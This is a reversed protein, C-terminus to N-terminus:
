AVVEVAKLTALAPVGAMSKAHQISARTAADMPGAYLLVRDREHGSGQTLFVSCWDRGNQDSLEVTVGGDWGNATATLGRHGLRTVTTSNSKHGYLTGRFRAM